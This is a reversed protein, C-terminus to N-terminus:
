VPIRIPSDTTTEWTEDPTLKGALLTYLADRLTRVSKGKASIIQIVAENGSVIREFKVAIVTGRKPRYVGPKIFGSYIIQRSTVRYTNPEYPIMIIPDTLDGHYEKPLEVFRFWVKVM